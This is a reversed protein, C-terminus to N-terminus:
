PIAIDSGNDIDKIPSSSGPNLVANVGNDIDNYPNTAFPDIVEDLGNEIDNYMIFSTGDPNFYTNGVITVFPTDIYQNNTNILVVGPTNPAITNNNGIIFGGNSNTGITNNNGEVISVSETNNGSGFELRKIPGLKIPGITFGGRTYKESVKRPTKILEVTSPLNANASYVIKNVYFYHGGDDTLGDIFINDNYDFQAIDAPTLYIKCKILKANKDAIDNLFDLWYNNVLNNPTISNLEDYYSYLISGFNYDITAADTPHDLHGAYPYSNQSPLGVLQITNDCALPLPRKRLFRINFDTRDYIGSKLDRKAIKPLFINKSGFVKDVPTPSFIIEIKQEGDIWENDISKRYEGFITNTSETYNANYYDKDAKYTLLITKKQQDSILFEEIKNNHDVKDSWDKIQGSGYYQNRPIFTLRQSNDKNPIVMLNFMTIISKLYDVQKINKPIFDNFEIYNNVLKDTYIKNYFATKEDLIHYVAPQNTISIEVWFVENPLTPYRWANNTYVLGGIGPVVPAPTVGNDLIPGYVTFYKHDMIDYITPTSTSIKDVRYNIQCYVNPLGGVGAVLSSRYFRVYWSDTNFTGPLFNAVNYGYSLDVMFQQVTSGIAPAIYKHTTTNYRNLYDYGDGTSDNDFDLDFSPPFVSNPPFNQLTYPQSLLGKFSRIDPKSLNDVGSFPIITETFTDTDLFGPEISFGANTLIKRFLYANSIAPKFIAPNIGNGTSNYPNTTDYRTISYESTADPIVSWNTTLTLVTGTNSAITRIQGIGTGANINVQYTNFANIVWIKSPDSLTNLTGSTATGFDVNISLIGSNLESLSLDYGYDILPYYYGLDKTNAYWSDYVNQSSRNHNLESFDLDDNPNANGRILKDGLSKVLDIVEGYVVIEYSIVNKNSVNIKTLQLNGYFVPVTDNLMYCPTKKRPDFTADSGINFIHNFLINNNKDAPVTFNQSSTSERKAIDKVDTISITLSIPEDPYLNIKGIASTNGNVFLELQNTM